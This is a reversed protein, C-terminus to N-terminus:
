SLNDDWWITASDQTKHIHSSVAFRGQSFDNDALQTPGVAHFFWSPFAVLRNPLAEIRTFWAPSIAQGSPKSDFVYLDGGGFRPITEGFYYLWTIARGAASYAAHNDSHTKFFGGDVHNTLKLEVRNTSFDSLGLSERLAALNEDIFSLFFNRELTFHYDVLTRRRDPDYAPPADENTALADRFLAKRECAHAHLSRMREVPLFDDIMVIPAIAYGGHSFLGSPIASWDDLRAESAPVDNALWEVFAARAGALDGTRRLLNARAFRSAPSPEQQDLAALMAANLCAGGLQQLHTFTEEASILM